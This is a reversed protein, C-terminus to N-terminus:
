FSHRLNLSILDAFTKYTGNYNDVNHGNTPRDHFFLFLNGFELSTNGFKIGAGISYGTRNADPLLPSVDEDPQPTQDYLWGVGIWMNEKPKYALGARVTWTNEYGHYLTSTPVQKGNVADFKIVTQDFVDWTTYDGDVELQLKPCVDVAVGFQTLSPYQVTVHTPVATNVPVRSAFIADLQPNGTSIQYFYADGSYDQDVASHYSAGITVHEVPRIQIGAAWAVKSALGDSKIDVHAADVFRNTFPNFLSANRQLKVDGLRLEPGAGLSLWDTLKASVQLGVAFTKLDVRQSLFRGRFNDPDEWATSLGFPAWTGFSVNVNKAVPFAVYLNPPFFIQRKMEVNYGDGPYPSAGEFKSFYPILTVGVMVTLKDNGGMGAPNYYMASPDDAFAAFAGGMATAKSGKENIAFGGALAIPSAAALALVVLAAALRFLRKSRKM